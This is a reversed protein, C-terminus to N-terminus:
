GHDRRRQSDRHLRRPPHDRGVRAPVASRPRTSPRWGAVVARSADVHAHVMGDLKMDHIFVPAGFVKDALDVRAANQGVVHYDNASKIAASAIGIADPRRRHRAVL